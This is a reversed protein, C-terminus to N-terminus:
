SIVPIFNKQVLFLMRSCFIHFHLSVAYMMKKEPNNKYDVRYETDLILTDSYYRSKEIGVPSLVLTLPVNYKALIFASLNITILEALEISKQILDGM